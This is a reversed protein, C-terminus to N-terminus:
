WFCAPVLLHVHCTKRSRPDLSHMLHQRPVDVTFLHGTDSLSGAGIFRSVMKRVAEIVFGMVATAAIIM